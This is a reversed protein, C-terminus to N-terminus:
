AKLVRVVQRQVGVWGLGSLRWRGARGEISLCPIAVGARGATGDCGGVGGAVWPGRVGCVEGGRMHCPKM